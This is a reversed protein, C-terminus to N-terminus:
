GKLCQTILISRKQELCNRLLHEHREILMQLKTIRNIHYDFISQHKKILYSYKHNESILVESHLNQLEIRKDAKIEMAKRRNRRSVVRTYIQKEAFVPVDIIDSNINFVM